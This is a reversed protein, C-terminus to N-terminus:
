RGPAPTAGAWRAARRSGTSARRASYAVRGRASARLTRSESARWGSSRPMISPWRRCRTSPLGDRNAPMRVPSRPRRPEDAGLLAYYVVSIVRERPDRDPRGFTHLQTLAIGTLGTEEALERCAADELDEDIDVFGGPLAWHGAFPEGARRILLLSM